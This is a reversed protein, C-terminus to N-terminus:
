PLVRKKETRKTIIKRIKKETKKNSKDDEEKANDNENDRKRNKNKKRRMESIGERKLRDPKKFKITKKNTIIELITM